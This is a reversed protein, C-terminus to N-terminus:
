NTREPKEGRNVEARQLHYAFSNLIAERGKCHNRFKIDNPTPFPEKTEFGGMDLFYQKRWAVPVYWTFGERIDPCEDRLSDAYAQFAKLDFSKATRGFDQVIQESGIAGCEILRFTFWDAENIHEVLLKDWNKEFLVDTNSMVVIDYKAQSILFNFAPYVIHRDGGNVTILEYPHYTNKALIKKNLALVRNNEPSDKHPFVISIGTM